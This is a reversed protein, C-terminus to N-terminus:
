KKIIWTVMIYCSESLRFSFENSITAYTEKLRDKSNNIASLFLIKISFGHLSAAYSITAYKNNNNQWNQFLFLAFM